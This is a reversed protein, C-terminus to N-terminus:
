AGFKNEQLGKEAGGGGAGEQVKRLWGRMRGWRREQGRTGNSTSDSLKLKQLINM